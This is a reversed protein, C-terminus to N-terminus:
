VTAQRVGEHHPRLDEGSNMVSPMISYLLCKTSQMCREIVRTGILKNTVRHLNTAGNALLVFSLVKVWSTEELRELPKGLHALFRHYENHHVTEGFVVVEDGVSMWVRHGRNSTYEKVM